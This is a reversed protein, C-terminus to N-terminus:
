SLFHQSRLKRHYSIAFRHAEDRIKQLLRLSLSNKPLKIVEGEPPYLWEMRKALGLVPATWGVKKVEQSVVGVQGKGGDVLILDPKPWEDHKLRRSLIERMMAVDNPKGELRIKFKRYWKKDLDGWTLVVLSGVAQQGLINSVDYCEIREPVAALLLDEQLKLIALKNQDELFNPNELYIEARNPQILYELGELTKKITQAKEFNLVKSAEEMEQQLDKLLEEKEGRMFKSFRKIIRAYEAETVKGACPGPCLGLHYYFCPRGRYPKGGQACWPFIRRLKKLTSRVTRSSPFPGFYEKADLLEGKRATVVKPFPEKTIKVYLYDRDDTLKINYPPHHKKILNAELILAELESLVEITEVSFIRSVLAATKSSDPTRNFYSSVRHYLDIAKGVYLIRGRTDRYIYVGPRHPISSKDISIPFAM